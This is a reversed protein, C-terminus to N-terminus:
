FGEEVDEPEQKVTTTKKSGDGGGGGDDDANDAQQPDTGSTQQYLFRYFGSLDKQKTVDLLAEMEAEKKEREEEEQLELLKKKYASTVFEEKDKFEEGEAEREQQIKRETRKEQEKKRSAAAKLLGEIYKPKKDAKTKLLLDTKIKESQIDDYIKDYEYVSPDDQLAKDIELQAQKKLKNKRSEKQLSTSFVGQEDMALDFLM